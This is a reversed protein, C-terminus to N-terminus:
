QFRLVGYHEPDDYSGKLPAWIHEKVIDFQRHRRRLALRWEETAQPRAGLAQAPLAIEIHWARDTVAVAAQWPAEFAVMDGAFSKRAHQLGAANVAFQRLEAGADSPVLFLDCMDDHKRYMEAGTGANAQLRTCDHDACAFAVYLAEADYAVRVRTEVVGSGVPLLHTDVRRDLKVFPAQRWVPEELRGDVTPTTAAPRAVLVPVAAESRADDLWAAYRAMAPRTDVLQTVLARTLRHWAEAYEGRRVGAVGAQAASAALAVERDTAVRLVSRDGLAGLVRDAREVLPAAGRPSLRGTHWAAVRAGPDARFSRMEYAGLRVTLLTDEGRTQVDVRHGTAADYVREVGTLTLRAEVDWYGPNAVYFWYEGEAEGHRVALNADIDTDLAPDLKHAPLSIIQRAIERWQQEQGVMQGVDAFGFVMMEPDNAIMALTFPERRYDGDQQALFRARNVDFPWDAGAPLIERLERWGTMLGAFRGQDVDYERSVEKSLMHDRTVPSDAGKGASPYDYRGYWLGDHERYMDGDFGYLRNAERYSVSEDYVWQKIRSHPIYNGLVCMLDGRYARLKDRTKLAIDRQKRCRWSIWRERMDAATLFAHRAAFRDPGDGPVHVGTEQEFRAVTADSYDVDLPRGRPPCLTPGFGNPDPYPMLLVGRWAPSHSFKLALDNIVNLYAAEVEPHIYNTLNGQQRGDKRVPMLTDRGEVVQRDTVVRPKLSPGNHYWEVLSLAAIGNAEYFPLLISRIDCPVQSSDAVRNPLAYSLNGEHYQYAGIAHFNQGCFRLYETYHRAVDFFWAIRAIYHMAPDLDQRNYFSEYPDPMEVGFNIGLYLPRECHPGVFRQHLGPRRAAPLSGQVHYIRLQAAAARMGTKLNAVEFTHQGPDARHVWRLTQMRGSVPNYVGTVVAPGSQTLYGERKSGGTMRDRPLSISLGIARPKDNPYDLELVYWDGPHEFEIKYSFFSVVSDSQTERYRLGDAEVIRPTELLPKRAQTPKHEHEGAKDVWPHPDNPDTFDIADELERDLGEEYSTGAVEEQQTRGYVVFPEHYRSEIAQGQSALTTEIAYVAQDLTGLPIDLVQLGDARRPGRATGQKLPTKAWGEIRSVRWTVAPDPVNPPLVVQLNVPQASNFFLAKRDPNRYVIRGDYEVLPTFVTRKCFYRFFLGPHAPHDTALTSAPAWARDDFGPATWGAAPEASFRWDDPADLSIVDGNDLVVRGQVYLLVDTRKAFSGTYALANRGPRLLETIDASVLYTNAVYEGSGTDARAGNVYLDTSTAVSVVARWVSRGEPIDFTRRYFGVAEPRLVRVSAIEVRNDAPGEVKIEFGDAGPMACDFRVTRWAGGQVTRRSENRLGLWQHPQTPSAGDGWLKVTWTSEPASQRVRLEITNELHWLDVVEDEPQDGGYNGWGLIAEKGSVTFVLAGDRIARDQIAPSFYTFDHLARGAFDARGQEDALDHLVMAPKLAEGRFVDTFAVEGGAAGVAARSLCLAAALAFLGAARQWTRELRCSRMGNM